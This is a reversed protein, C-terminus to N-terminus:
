SGLQLMLSLFSVMSGNSLLAGTACFTNTILDLPTVINTELDWLAGWASYNNIQLLDNGTNDFFIVLTPPVVIAELALVGSMGNQIFAWEM